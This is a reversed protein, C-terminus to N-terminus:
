RRYYPYPPLPMPMQIPPLPRPAYYPAPSRPATRYRPYPAAAQARRPQYYSRPTPQPLAPKAPLPAPAPRAKPAKAIARPPLPRQPAAPRPKVQQGSQINMSFPTESSNYDITEGPGEEPDNISNPELGWATALDNEDGWPSFWAQAVGLQLLTIFFLSLPAILTKM